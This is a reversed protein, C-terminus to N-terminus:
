SKAAKKKRPGRRGARGPRQRPAPGTETKRADCRACKYAVTFSLPEAGTVRWKHGGTSCTTHPEHSDDAQVNRTDRGMAMTETSNKRM